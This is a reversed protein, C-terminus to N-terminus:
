PEVHKTEDPFFIDYDSGGSEDDCDECDSVDWLSVPEIKRGDMSVAVLEGDDNKVIVSGVSVGDFDFGIDTLAKAKTLANTIRFTFVEDTLWMKYRTLLGHLMSLSELQRVMDGDKMVDCAMRSILDTFERQDFGVDSFRAIMRRYEGPTMPVPFRKGKNTSGNANRSGNGNSDKRRGM